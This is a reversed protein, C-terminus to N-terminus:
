RHESRRKIAAKLSAVKDDGILLSAGKTALRRSQRTVRNRLRLPETQETYEANILRPNIFLHCGQRRMQEHFSVHECIEEGDKNTGVYRASGIKSRKYIALGGFASDVEIWESDSPLTIMKSYVSAYMLMEEDDIYRKLFRHQAWCDNNCWEKQRLAWIDYYPGKQNAMCADWFGREWCSSIGDETILTNMGDFDSVIVYEINHYLANGDLENLYHNRCHAIRETRLPISHRLVGLSIFSFNHVERSLEELALITGDTSDSEVLLWHLSKVKALAASLSIVDGKVYGACNRVLGVVLFNANSASQHQVSEEPVDSM